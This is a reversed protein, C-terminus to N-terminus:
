QCVANCEVRNYLDYNKAIQTKVAVTNKLQNEVNKEYLEKPDM